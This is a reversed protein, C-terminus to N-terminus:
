KSERTVGVMEAAETYKGKSMLNDFQARKAVSLKKARNCLWGTMNQVQREKKGKSGMAHPQNRTGRM